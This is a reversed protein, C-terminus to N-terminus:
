PMEGLWPFAFWVFWMCMFLTFRYRDRYSRSRVAMRGLWVAVACLVLNFGALTSTYALGEFQVGYPWAVIFYFVSGLMVVACFLLPPLVVRSTRTALPLAIVVFLSAGLLPILAPGRDIDGLLNEGIWSASLMLPLPCPSWVRSGNCYAIGLLSVGAVVIAGLPLALAPPLKMM